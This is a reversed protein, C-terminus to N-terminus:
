SAQWFIQQLSTRCMGHLQLMATLLQLLGNSRCAPASSTPLALHTHPGAARTMCGAAQVTTSCCRCSAVAIARRVQRRGWGWECGRSSFRAQCWPTNLKKETAVPIDAAAPARDIQGTGKGERRMVVCVDATAAAALLDLAVCKFGPDVVGWM